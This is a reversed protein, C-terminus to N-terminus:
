NNQFKKKIKYCESINVYRLNILEEPIELLKTNNCKLRIINNIHKNFLEINNDLIFNYIVINFNKFVKIFNITYHYNLYKSIQFILLILIILLILFTNNVM